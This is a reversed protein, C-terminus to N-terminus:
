ISPILGKLIKKNVLEVNDGGNVSSTLRLNTEKTFAAFGRPLVSVIVQGPQQRTESHAGGMQLDDQFLKFEIKFQDGEELDPMYEVYFAIQIQAPFDPVVIDGSFVGMLSWKGHVEQRIDECVVVNRFKSKTETV